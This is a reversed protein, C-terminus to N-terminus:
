MKATTTTESVFCISGSTVIIHQLQSVSYGVSWSWPVSHKLLWNKSPYNNFEEGKIFGLPEDSNECSGVV